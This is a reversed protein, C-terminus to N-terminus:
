ILPVCHSVKSMHNFECLCQLRGRQWGHRGTPLYVLSYGCRYRGDGFCLSCQSAILCSFFSNSKTQFVLVCGCLFIIAKSESSVLANTPCQYGTRPTLILSKKLLEWNRRLSTSTPLRCETCSRWGRCLSFGSFGSFSLYAHVDATFTRISIIHKWGM